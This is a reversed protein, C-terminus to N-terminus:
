DERAVIVICDTAVLDSGGMTANVTVEVETGPEIMDLGLAFIVDRRSFHLVLDDYGDPEGTGCTCPEGLPGSVDEISPPKDESGLIAMPLRGKGQTNTNLPNPCSGPKIDLPAIVPMICEDNVTVGDVYVYHWPLAPHGYATKVVVEVVIDDCVFGYDAPIHHAFPHWTPVPLTPFAWLQPSSWSVGTSPQSIHMQVYSGPMDVTLWYFSIDIEKPYDPEHVNEVTQGIVGTSTQGFGILDGYVRGGNPSAPPHGAAFGPQTVGDWGGPDTTSFTDWSTPLHTGTPDAPSDFSGNQLAGGYAWGALCFSVLAVWYMKKTPM